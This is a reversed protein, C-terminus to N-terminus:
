RGKTSKEMVLEAARQRKAADHEKRAQLFRERQAARMEDRQEDTLQPVGSDQAFVQFTGVLLASGLVVLVIRNM